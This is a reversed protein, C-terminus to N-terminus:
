SYFKGFWDTVKQKYYMGLCDQVLGEINYIRANPTSKYVLVIM